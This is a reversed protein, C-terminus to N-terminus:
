HCHKMKELPFNISNKVFLIQWFRPLFKNQTFNDVIDKNEFHLNNIIRQLTRQLQEPVSQDFLQPFSIGGINISELLIGDFFVLIHGQVQRLM